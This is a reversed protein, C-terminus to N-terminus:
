RRKAGWHPVGREQAMVTIGLVSSTVFPVLVRLPISKMAHSWPMATTPIPHRDRNYLVCAAQRNDDLLGELDLALPLPKAEPSQGVRRQPPRANRPTVPRM